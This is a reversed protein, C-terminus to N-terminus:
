CKHSLGTENELTMKGNYFGQDKMWQRDYIKSLYRSGGDPFILVVTSGKPIENAIKDTAAVAAGSSYGAFVGENEALHKAAYAGDEDTVNVFRDIHEFKVNKPIINKGVGEMRTKKSRDMYFVGTDHFHHLVDTVSDVGIVQVDPNQEKLYMGTGSLTGGTSACAIYHTIKGETQEWIEPGTSYYHAYCNGLDNNQNLYFAGPISAAIREAKKYYSEPHDGPLSAKCLIMEAGLAEVTKIKDSSVTDKITLICKYGKAACLMALSFGTNGSTAEVITAGPQLLGESEAKEIMRFVIRDKVSLGPNFAELKAYVDSQCQESLGHL